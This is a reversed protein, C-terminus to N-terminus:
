KQTSINLKNDVIKFEGGTLDLCKSPTRIQPNLCYKTEVNDIHSWNKNQVQLYAGDVNKLKHLTFDCINQTEATYIYDLQGPVDILKYTNDDIKTITGTSKRKRKIKCEKELNRKPQIWVIVSDQHYVFTERPKEKLIGFSCTTPCTACDKKLSIKQVM